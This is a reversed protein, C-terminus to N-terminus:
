SDRQMSNLVSFEIHGQKTNLKKKKDSIQLKLNKCEGILLNNV